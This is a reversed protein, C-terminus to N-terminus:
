IVAKNLINKVLEPMRRTDIPKSIYDDFGSDLFRERDGKMAFSTLAIIKIGKTIPDNKLIRAATLGDMVPMQIDMMILDPLYKRAMKIGEEGNAAEIIEYGYYDLVEKILKRNNDNDEVLLIKKNM